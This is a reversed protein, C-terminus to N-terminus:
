RARQSVDVSLNLLFDGAVSGRSWCTSPLERPETRLARHAAVGYERAGRRSRGRGGAVIEIAIPQMEIHRLLLPLVGQGICGFGVM